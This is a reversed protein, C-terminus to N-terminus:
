GHIYLSMVSVQLSVLEEAHSIDSILEEAHLDDSVLTYVVM